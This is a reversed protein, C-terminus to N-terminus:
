IVLNVVRGKVHIRKKVPKGDRARIVNPEAEALAFVEEDSADVSVEITGRLKGLVQVALTATEARLLAPDAELWPLQAVLGAGPKLTAWIEEALHPMMPSALRVLAEM